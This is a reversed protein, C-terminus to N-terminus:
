RDELMGKVTEVGCLCAANAPFARLLAPSIGRFLARPGEERLLTQFVDLLNKYKGAPATQWRSKIVDMPIAVIWNGVGACGGAMLTGFTSAKTRGELECSLRKMFVYTGFYVANGPVDRMATSATGKLVSRAGGEQYVKRLCDLFGNYKGKDVQMLCKIREAPGFIAALPIGSFGGALGVQAITLEDDRALNSYERIARSAKEFSWFSIAFAPTVALLPATVGRYLGSVGEKVFIGRLMGLTSDGGMIMNAWSASGVRSTAATGVQQRVKIL